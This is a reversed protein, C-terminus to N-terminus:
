ASVQSRLPLTISLPNHYVNMQLICLSGNKIRRILHTPRMDMLLMKLAKLLNQTTLNQFSTNNIPSGLNRKTEKSASSNFAKHDYIIGVITPWSNILNQELAFRFQFWRRSTVNNNLDNHM